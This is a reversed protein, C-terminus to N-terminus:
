DSAWDFWLTGRWGRDKYHDDINDEFVSISDRDPIGRVAYLAKGRALVEPPTKIWSWSKTDTETKTQLLRWQEESMLEVGFMKAMELVTIETSSDEEKRGYKLGRRKDPSADACDGISFGKEDAFYVNPEGGTEELRQISWLKTPNSELAKKVRDWSVGEHLQPTSEFRSQLTQLLSDKQEPVLGHEAAGVTGCVQTAVNQQRGAVACDAPGTASGEPKCGPELGKSSENGEM